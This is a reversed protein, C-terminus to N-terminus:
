NNGQIAKNKLLLLLTLTLRLSPSFLLLLLLLTLTLRMKRKEGQLEGGNRWSAVLKVFTSATMFCDNDRGGFACM